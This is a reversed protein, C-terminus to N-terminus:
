CIESWNSLFKNSLVSCVDDDLDFLEEAIQDRATAQNGGIDEDSDDDDLVRV